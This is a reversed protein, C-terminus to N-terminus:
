DWVGCSVGMVLLGGGVSSGGGAIGRWQQIVLLYWYVESYWASLNITLVQCHLETIHICSHVMTDAVLLLLQRAAMM